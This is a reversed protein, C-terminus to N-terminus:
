LPLIINSGQTALWGGNQEDPRAPEGREEGGSCVEVVRYQSMVLVPNSFVIHETHIKGPVAWWLICSWIIRYHAWAFGLIANELYECQICLQTFPVFLEATCFRLLCVRQSDFHLPPVLIIQDDSS